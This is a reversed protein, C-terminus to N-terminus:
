RRKKKPTAQQSLRVPMRYLEIQDIHEYIFARIVNSEYIPHRDVILVVKRGVDKILRDLFDLLTTAALPKPYVMFRLTGQNTTASIIDHDIRSYFRHLLSGPRMTSRECSQIEAQQERARARIAPYENEIWEKAEQPSRELAKRLPKEQDFGADRLLRGVHSSSYEVGHVQQLLQRVAERNWLYFPLNLQDPFQDKLIGMAINYESQPIKSGKPRGQRRARISELGGQRYAKMWKSMARYSVGFLVAAESQKMGGAVAKVALLRIAEQTDPSLSRADRKGHITEDIM